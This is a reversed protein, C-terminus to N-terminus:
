HLCIQAWKQVSHEGLITQLLIVGKTQARFRYAAGAPLLAQHGRSLKITGMPRGKPGEALRVSGERTAPVIDKPNELQVFEVTVVGDMVVAFEDHSAAYWASDGEARLVEVVFELNKGVVTKEYPVSQSAVEFINSFVYHKPNDNIIEISGKEYHDLSGFRTEYTM